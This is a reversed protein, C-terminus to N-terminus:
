TTNRTGYKLLSSLCLFPLPLFFAPFPLSLVKECVGLSPCASSKGGGGRGVRGGGGGGWDIGGEKETISLTEGVRTVKAEPLVVREGVGGGGGRERGFSLFPPSKARLSESPHGHRERM